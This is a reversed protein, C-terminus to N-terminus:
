LKKLELNEDETGFEELPKDRLDEIQIGFHNIARNLKEFNRYEQSERQKPNSFYLKEFDELSPTKYLIKPQLPTLM